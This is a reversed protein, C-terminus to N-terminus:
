GAQRGVQGAWLGHVPLPFLSREESGAPPPGAMGRGVPPLSGGEGGLDEVEPRREVIKM